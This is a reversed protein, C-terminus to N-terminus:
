LTRYHAIRETRALGTSFYLISSGPRGTCGTQRRLVRGGLYSLRGGNYCPQASDTGQRIHRSRVPGPYAQVLSCPYYQLPGHYQPLTVRERLLPDRQCPEPAASEPAVLQLRCVPNDPKM